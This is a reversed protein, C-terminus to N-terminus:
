QSLNQDCNPVLISLIEEHQYTKLVTVNFPKNQSNLDLISQRMSEMQPYSLEICAGSSKDMLTIKSEDLMVFEYETIVGALKKVKKPGSM